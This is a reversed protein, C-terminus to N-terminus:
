AGSAGGRRAERLRARAVDCSLRVWSPDAASASLVLLVWDEVGEVRLRGREFDAEVAAAGAEKLLRHAAAAAAALEEPAYGPPATSQILGASARAVWAGVVGPTRRLPELAAALANSM